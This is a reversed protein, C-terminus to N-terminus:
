LLNEDKTIIIDLNYDGIERSISERLNSRVQDPLDASINQAVPVVTLTLWYKRGTKLIYIRWEKFIKLDMYSTIAKRIKDQIDGQPAMLLLERLGNRIAYVPIPLTILGILIVVIQDVYPIVPELFGNKFILVLLFSLGIGSSILTNVMWNEKEMQLVPSAKKREKMRILMYILFNGAVALGIYIVILGIQLENGGRIIILINSSVVFVTLIFLILGKILIYFPELAVYGAPFRESYPEKLLQTVKLAFFAMLASILNFAADLLVAQSKTWMAFVLGLIAFTFAGIISIKIGTSEVSENPNM